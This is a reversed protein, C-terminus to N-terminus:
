SAPFLDQAANTNKAVKCNAVLVKYTVGNSGRGIVGVVTYKGDLVDGPSYDGVAFDAMSTKITFHLARGSGRFM